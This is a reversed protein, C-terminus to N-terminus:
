VKGDEKLIWKIIIRGDTYFYKMHDREKLKGCWFGINKKGMGYMGHM